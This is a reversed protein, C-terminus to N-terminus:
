EGYGDIRLLRFVVALVVTFCHRRRASVPLSGSSGAAPLSNVVDM